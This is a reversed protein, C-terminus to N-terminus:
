FNNENGSKLIDNIAKRADSDPDAYQQEAIIRIFKRNGLRHLAGIAALRVKVDPHKLCEALKESAMPTRIRQLTEIVATRVFTHRHNLGEMLTPIMEDPLSALASVSRERHEPDTSLNLLAMVSERTGIMGLSNIASQKIESDKETLALWQLAGAAGTGGRRGLAEVASKRIAQNSSKSLSLLTQLSDPHHVDGLANVAATSVNIDNDGTLTALCSASISGGAHGLFEAAAIRVFPSPDSFALYRIKELSAMLGLNDCSKIAFYKVWGDQDNLAEYLVEYAEENEINGLAKAAAMRMKPNHSRIINRLLALTTEDEFFPLNETVATTVNINEDNLLSIIKEKCDPFGFYGAIKVASERVNPDKDNLLGAIKESMEPHGISNLAAIASRRISPNKHGIIALLPDFAKRDGIKALAGCSIVALEDDKLWPIIADVANKGGIRGLALIAAQRTEMESDPTLQNVLLEIVDQGSSVLADIVAKSTGPQGLYRTLYKNVLPNNLWGLVTIVALRDKEGTEDLASILRATGEATIKRCAIDRIYDGDSLMIQYREAIRTLALALAIPNTKNINIQGAIVPVSDAEGLEALAEIVTQGLLDDNILPLLLKAARNDGILKLADIAPFATFFDGSLAINVLSEVAQFARLRGLSEISHYRVNSDQDSLARILAEIVEPTNKEGLMQAAYIRLEQDEDNLLEILYSTVDTENVSLVKMASNLFSLNRHEERILRIIESIVSHGASALDNVADRRIRWNADALANLDSKLSTNGPKQESISTVDEITVICGLIKEEEALPAITVRQQMERFIGSKNEIPIQILYHHFVSSLIEVNGNALVRMFREHLGRKEIDPIIRTIHQGKVSAEEFGTKKVLWDNWSTINLNEDTTFIGIPSTLNM